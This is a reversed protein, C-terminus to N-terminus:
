VRGSGSMKWGKAASLAGLYQGLPWAFALGIARADRQCRLHEALTSAIARALLPISPITRLRFLEFLRRHLVYTRDFEYRVPRDHSHIVVAEPAFALRHGALLVARGWEVDEGIPTARYPHELWVSRRICACVNDFACREFQAMPDLAEFESRSAVDITRGAAASAIWRALNLRTIASAEPRPLQRAFAGAVHGDARLPASLSALWSDSAPLADQVMLVVLEGRAQEIGLNRTLGHDFTEAPISLFSDVRAKLLDATGDTSSSDVAVVEIAFDVRQQAIADLLAPLTAAGNRTPLVISLFPTSM